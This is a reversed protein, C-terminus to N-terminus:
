SVLEQNHENSCASCCGNEIDGCAEVVGHKKCFTYAKASIDSLKIAVYKADTWERFFLTPLVEPGCQVGILNFKGTCAYRGNQGMTLGIAEPCKGNHLAWNAAAAAFQMKDM